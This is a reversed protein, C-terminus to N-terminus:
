KSARIDAFARARLRCAWSKDMGLVRGAEELNLEEPGYMLGLLLREKEPLSSVRSQVAATDRALDITEEPASAPSAFDDIDGSVFEGAFQEGQRAAEADARRYPGTRRIWDVMAGKIRWWAFSAFTSGARKRYREAAECLGVAGASVLDDFDFSPCRRHTDRALKYVLPLHSAADIM